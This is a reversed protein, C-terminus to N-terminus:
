VVFHRRYAKPRTFVCVFTSPPMTVDAAEVLTAPSDRVEYSFGHLQTMRQVFAEWPEDTADTAVEGTARNLWISKRVTHGVLVVANDSCCVTAITDALLPVLSSLYVVDAALVVDYVGAHEVNGFGREASVTSPAFPGSSRGNIPAVVERQQRQGREVITCTSPNTGLFASSAATTVPNLSGVTASSCCTASAMQAWDLVATQCINAVNNLEVNAALLPLAQPLDTLTVSRAGVKAAIIGPLGLGAGLEVVAAARHLLEAGPDSLLYRALCWAAPWLEWGLICDSFQLAKTDIQLASPSPM